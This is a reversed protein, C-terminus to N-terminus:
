VWHCLISFWTSIPCPDMLKPAGRHNICQLALPCYRSGCCKPISVFLPVSKPQGKAWHCLISKKKGVHMRARLYNMVDGSAATQQLWVKSSWSKDLAVCQLASDHFWKDQFIGRLDNLGVTLGASGLFDCELRSEWKRLPSFSSAM